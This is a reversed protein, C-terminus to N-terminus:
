EDGEEVQTGDISDKKIKELLIRGADEWTRNTVYEYASEVMQTVWEKDDRIADYLAVLKQEGSETSVIARNGNGFPDTLVIQPQILLANVEDIASWIGDNKITTGAHEALATCNTVVCPVGIRMAELMPIALGEAKSTLMFADAALFLQRLQIPTIGREYLKVNSIVGHRMGLDQLDYGVPSQVRTVLHMEAKRKEKTETAFGIENREIVDVSFRSFIEIAGALHKREQNDAVTLVVFTDDDIGLGKRTRQYDEKTRANWLSTGDDIAVPIFDSEINYAALEQKGFKSMVLREDLAHLNTAWSVCVPEAEVPFIGITKTDKLGGARNIEEIIKLQMPIDLAIVVAEIPAGGRSLNFIMPLVDSLRRLPIINFPYDHEEERYSLGLVTVKKGSKVLQLGLQSVIRTYGSGRMNMESVILVRSTVANEFSVTLYEAM